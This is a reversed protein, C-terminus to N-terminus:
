SSKFTQVAEYLFAEVFLSEPHDMMMIRQAFALHRIKGQIEEETLDLLKLLEGEPDEVFTKEDLIIAYDSMNLISKFVPAYVPLCDAIVVPICGARVSRVFAKSHPSDGRIVLCFKSDVYERLWEKVNMDWGISSPPLHSMTINTVPVHRYITSNWQSPATRTHYFIFNSANRWHDMTPITLPINVVAPYKLFDPIPVAASDPKTGLGLSISSRSVPTFQEFYPRYEHFMEYGTGDQIAKAVGNPDWSQVLTVNYLKPYHAMLPLIRNKFLPFGTAILVHRHGRHQLFLPEQVLTSFSLDWFETSNKASFIRGMPIPIIIVHAEEPDMTRRSSRELVVFMSEDFYIEDTCLKFAARNRYGLPWLSPDSLTLNPHQYM